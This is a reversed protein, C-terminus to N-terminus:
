RIILFSDKLAHKIIKGEYFSGDNFNLKGQGHKM